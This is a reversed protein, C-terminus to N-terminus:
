GGKLREGAADQSIKQRKAMSAATSKFNPHRMSTPTM